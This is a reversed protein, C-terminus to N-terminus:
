RRRRKKTKKKEPKLGLIQRSIDAANIGLKVTKQRSRVWPNRKPTSMGGGGFLIGGAPPVKPTPPPRYFQSAYSRTLSPSVSPSKSPRVYPSYSKAISRSASPSMSPSKFSSPSQSKLISSSKKSAATISPSKMRSPSVSASMARSISVSLSRSASPSLVRSVSKSPSLTKSVSKVSLPIRSAAISSLVVSAPAKVPTMSASAMYFGEEGPLSYGAKDVGGPFKKKAADSFLELSKGPKKGYTNLSSQVRIFNEVDKLRHSAPEFVGGAEVYQTKIQDFIKTEAPNFPQGMTKPIAAASGLAKGEESLARYTIGNVKLTPNTIRNGYAFFEKDLKVMEQIMPDNIDHIDLMHPWNGAKQVEILGPRQPDIRIAPGNVKSLESLYRRATADKNKVFLMIDIDSTKVPNLM